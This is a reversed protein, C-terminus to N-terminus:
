DVGPDVFWVGLKFVDILSKTPPALHLGPAPSLAIGKFLERDTYQAGDPPPPEPSDLLMYQLQQVPKPEEPLDFDNQCLAWIRKWSAWGHYSNEIQKRIIADVIEAPPKSYDPMILQESAVLGLLGYVKDRTEECDSASGLELAEEWSLGYSGDAKRKDRAFRIRNLCTAEDLYPLHRTITNWDVHKSGWIVVLSKALLIEQIVWLRTWYHHLSFWAHEDFESEGRTVQKFGRTHKSFHNEFAQISDSWADSEHFGSGLWILVKEANTYIGAMLSIQHNREELSKQDICLQDVWLWTNGAPWSAYEILFHYLNERVEFRGGNISILHTPLDPGWTYSLADYAPLASSVNFHKLEFRLGPPTDADWVCRLLRIERIEPRVGHHQDYTLPKHSFRPITIEM